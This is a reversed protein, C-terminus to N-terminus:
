TILGSQKSALKILEKGLPNGPKGRHYLSGNRRVFHRAELKTLHRSLASSSMGTVEQLEDFTKGKGNLTQSIEIRRAHSFGTAQRIVTKLNMSRDFGTKLATMLSPAFKMATNAEARYIVNMKKRRSVVFGHEALLRLQNSTNTRSLGTKQM